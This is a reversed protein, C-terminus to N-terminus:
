EFKTKYEDDPALSEIIGDFHKKAENPLRRYMALHHIEKPSLDNEEILSGTHPTSDSSYGILYDVSTHFFEAFKMLTKLDPEALQNEYKYVSQQTLNFKEGLKQQSLGRAERLAKLNNM